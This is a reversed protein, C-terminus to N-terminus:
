HSVQVVPPNTTASVMLRVTGGPPVDIAYRTAAGELLPNKIELVSRGAPITEGRVPAEWVRNTGLLRIQANGTAGIHLTARTPPAEATVPRTPPEDIRPTAM